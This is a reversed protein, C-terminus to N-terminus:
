LGLMAAPSFYVFFCKLRKQNKGHFSSASLVEIFALSRDMFGHSGRARQIRPFPREKEAAEHM